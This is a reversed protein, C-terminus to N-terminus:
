HSTITVAVKYKVYKTKSINYLFYVDKFSLPKGTDLEKGNIQKWGETKFWNYDVLKLNQLDYDDLEVIEKSLIRFTFKPVHINLNDRGGEPDFYYRGEKKAIRVEEQHYEYEKRGLINIYELNEDFNGPIFYESNNENLVFYVDKQKQSFLIFPLVIIISILIKKNVNM